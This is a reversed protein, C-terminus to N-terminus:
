TKAARKALAADLASAAAEFAYKPSANVTKVLADMAATRPRLPALAPATKAVAFARSPSSVSRAAKVAIM